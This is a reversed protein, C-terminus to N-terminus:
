SREVTLNAKAPWDSNLVQGVQRGAVGTGTGQFSRGHVESVDHRDGGARELRRKGRLKCHRAPWGAAQGM